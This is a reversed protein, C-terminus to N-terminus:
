PKKDKRQAQARWYDRKMETRGLRLNLQEIQCLLRNVRGQLECIECSRALHGHICDRM